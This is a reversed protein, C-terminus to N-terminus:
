DGLMSHQWQALALQHLKTSQKGMCAFVVHDVNKLYNITSAVEEVAITAAQDAPFSYAGTSIAPFAISKFGNDDALQLANRYCDALLDAEGDNGGRWIPGVVHIIAKQPLNHARTIKAQGTECGGLGKCEALLGSGAARHVVGDVGGGGLLSKNAANVIVDTDVDIISQNLVEIVPEAM